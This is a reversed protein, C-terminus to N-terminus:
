ELILNIIADVDDDSLNDCCKVLACYFAHPGVEKIAAEKTKRMGNEYYDAAMQAAMRSKSQTLTEITADAEKLAFELEAIRNNMAEM